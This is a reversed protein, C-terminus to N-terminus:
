DGVVQGLVASAGMCDGCRRSLATEPVPFVVASVRFFVGPGYARGYARMEGAVTM